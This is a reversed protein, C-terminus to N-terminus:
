PVVRVTGFQRFHHDFTFADTVGAAEMVVKSTCDTFSWDKDAFRRFSDWADAIETPSMYHIGAPSAPGFMTTGWDIALDRQGRSRLLTLTEDIVYDTTLLPGSYSSYWSTAPFHNADSPVLVAYWAGTDVFTM